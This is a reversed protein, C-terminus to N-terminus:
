FSFKSTLASVYKEGLLQIVRQNEVELPFSRWRLGSPVQQWELAQSASTCQMYRRM